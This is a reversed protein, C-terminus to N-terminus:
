VKGGLSIIANELAEIKNYLAQYSPLLDTSGVRVIEIDEVKGIMRWSWYKNGEEIGRRFVIKGSITCQEKTYLYDGCDEGKLNTTDLELTYTYGGYGLREFFTKNAIFSLEKNFINNAVLSISIPIYFSEVEKFMYGSTNPKAFNLVGDEYTAIQTTIGNIDAFAGNVFSIHYKNPIVDTRNAKTSLTSAVNVGGAKLTTFEGTAGNISGVKLKDIPESIVLKNNSDIILANKRKTSSTGCGVVLKAGPVDENYRGLVVSGYKGDESLMGTGSVLKCSGSVKNSMGSVNNGQGNVTNAYGTIFNNKGGVTNGYGGVFSNDGTADLTNRGGYVFGNNALSKNNSGFVNANSTEFKIEYAEGIVAPITTDAKFTMTTGETENNSTINYRNGDVYVKYQTSKDFLEGPAEFTYNLEDIGICVFKGLEKLVGVENYKSNFKICGNEQLTLSKGYSDKEIYAYGAPKTRSKVEFCDDFRTCAGDYGYVRIKWDTQLLINPIDALTKGDQEYTDVVLACNDTRNCFHVQKITEDEVILKRDLDWQYLQERGDEIKFL